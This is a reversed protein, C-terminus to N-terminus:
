RFREAYDRGQRAEALTLRVIVDANERLTTKVADRGIDQMLAILESREPEDQYALAARSYSICFGGRKSREPSPWFIEGGAPFVEWPLDPDRNAREAAIQMLVDHVEDVTTDRKILERLRRDM